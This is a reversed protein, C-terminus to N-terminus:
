APAARAASGRTRGRRRCRRRRPRTTTPMHTTPVNPTVITSLWSYRGRWTPMADPSETPSAIPRPPIAARRARRREGVRDIELRRQDAARERGHEADDEAEEQGGRPARPRNRRCGRGCVRQEVSRGSSLSVRSSRAPTRRHAERSPRGPWSRRCSCCSRRRCRRADTGPRDRDGVARDRTCSPACSASQVSEALSSVSSSSRALALRVRRGGVHRALQLDLAVHAGRQLQLLEELSELSRMYVATRRSTAQPTFMRASITASQTNEPKVIPRQPGSRNAPATNPSAFTNRLGSSVKM